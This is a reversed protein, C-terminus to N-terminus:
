SDFLIPLKSPQVSKVVISKLSPATNMPSGSRSGCCKGPMKSNKEDNTRNSAFFLVSWTFSETTYSAIGSINISNAFFDRTSWPKRRKDLITRWANSLLIVGISCHEAASITSICPVTPISIFDIIGADIFCRM